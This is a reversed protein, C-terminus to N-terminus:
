RSRISYFSATTDGENIMSEVVVNKSLDSSIVDLCKVNGDPYFRLTDYYDFTFEDFVFELDNYKAYVISNAEAVDRVVTFAKNMEIKYGNFRIDVGFPEKEKSTYYKILQSNLVPYYVDAHKFKWKHYINIEIYYKFLDGEKKPTTYRASVFMNKLNHTKNIKRIEACTMELANIIDSVEVIEKEKKNPIGFEEYIFKEIENPEFLHAKVDYKENYLLLSMIEAEKKLVMQLEEANM